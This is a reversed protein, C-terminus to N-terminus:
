MSVARAKMTQTRIRAARVRSRKSSVNARFGPGQMPSVRVFDLLNHLAIVAVSATAVLRLPL